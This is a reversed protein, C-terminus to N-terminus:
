PIIILMSSSPFPKFISVSKMNCGLAQCIKWQKKENASCCEELDDATCEDDGYGNNVNGYNSAAQTTQGYASSSSTPSYPRYTPRMTPKKNGGSYQPIVEYRPAPDGYTDEPKYFSEYQPNTEYEDTM